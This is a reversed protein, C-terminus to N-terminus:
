VFFASKLLREVLANLKYTRATEEANKRQEPSIEKELDVLTKDITIQLERDSMEHQLLYYCMSLSREADGTERIINAYGFIANMVMYMYKKEIAMALCQHLGKEALDYEKRDYRISYEMYHLMNQLYPDDITELLKAAKHLYEIARDNDGKKRMDQSIGILVYVMGIQHGIMQFINYAKEHLAIATDCDGTIRAIEAMNLYATGMGDMNGIEQQITLAEQYYKTANELDNQKQMVTALNNYARALAFKDDGKKSAAVSERYLEIVTDYKGMYTACRAMIDLATAIGSYDEIKHWYLLSQDALQQANPYEGNNLYVYALANYAYAMGYINNIGKFIKLSNEIVAQAEQWMTAKRFATGLDIGTEAVNRDDGIARFIDISKELYERAIILDGTNFICVGIGHLLHARLASMSDPQVTDLAKQLVELGETYWRKQQFFDVLSKVSMELTEIMKKSMAWHWAERINEIEPGIASIATQRKSTLFADEYRKLLKGFFQSHANKVEDYNEPRKILKQVIYQRLTKLIEYRGSANRRLLSKDVLAALMPLTAECVDQAGDRNFGGAFVALKLMVAREDKNMMNWSYDFVARLSRHREPVDHMKTQLFDINKEIEQQIEECTLTRSWTAALEIGVPLGGVLQCIKLVHQKDQSSFTISAHARKANHYFLQIAGYTELNETVRDPVKMGEVQVVWEGKISIRERSTALIKVNPATNLIEVIFDASQLVTEFNDLVLMLKKGRLYNILQMKEDEKPYFSFRLGEAIALILFHPSYLAALPIYYVGQPFEDAREAAAQLALRTKGTGGSGVLTILRCAPDAILKTIEAIESERGFFPTTQMPLSYQQSSLSRLPPFEHLVLDPHTIEFIQQPEGLDKLRHTGLNRIIADAPIDCSNRVEPSLIVQGGWAANMIRATRNIVQGFYDGGRKEVNGAHLGMRIRLDGIVGWDSTQIKRQIALAAHLPKGDEFIAFLGDGTHKIINGDHQQIITSLITDHQKLIEKMADPYKEWKKTSGEIDTFLFVPM